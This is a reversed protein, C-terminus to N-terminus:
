TTKRQKTYTPYEKGGQSQLVENKVRDSWSIKEMKRCHWMKFSELFKQDVERLEWTEAGYLSHELHLM